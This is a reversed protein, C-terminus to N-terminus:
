KIIALESGGQSGGEDDRGGRNYRKKERIKSLARCRGSESASLPKL